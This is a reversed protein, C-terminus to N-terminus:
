AAQDEGSFEKEIRTWIAKLQRESVVERVRKEEPVIEILAECVRANFLHGNGKAREGMMVERLGNPLLDGLVTSGINYELYSKSAAAAVSTSRGAFVKTHGTHFGNERKLARNGNCRAEYVLQRMAYAILLPGLKAFQPLAVVEKTALRGAAELDSKHRRAAREAIQLVAEPLKQM